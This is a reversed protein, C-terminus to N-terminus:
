KKVVKVRYGLNALAEYTANDFSVDTPMSPDTSYEVDQEFAANLEQVTEGTQDNVLIFCYEPEQKETM